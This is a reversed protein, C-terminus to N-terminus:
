PAPPQQQPKSRGSWLGGFVKNAANTVGATAAQATSVQQLV